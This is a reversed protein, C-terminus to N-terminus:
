VGLRASQGLVRIMSFTVGVDCGPQSGRVISSLYEHNIGNISALLNQDRVARVTNM